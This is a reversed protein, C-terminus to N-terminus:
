TFTGRHLYGDIGVVISHEHQEWGATRTKFIWLVARGTGERGRKRSHGDLVNLPFHSHFLLHYIVKNLISNGHIWETVNLLSPLLVPFFFNDGIEALIHSAVFSFLVSICFNM